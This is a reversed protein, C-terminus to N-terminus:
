TLTPNNKREYMRRDAGDLMKDLTDGEHWEAVGISVSVPFDELNGSANWDELKGDIRKLVREAASPTPFSNKIRNASADAPSRLPVARFTKIWVDCAFDLPRGATKV